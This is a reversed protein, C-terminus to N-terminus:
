SPSPPTDPDDGEPSAARQQARLADAETRTRHHRERLRKAEWMGFRLLGDLALGVGLGVVVGGVVLANVRTGITPHGAGIGLTTILWLGIRYTLYYLPAATFPNTLFQLGLMLGLHGRVALAAAFAIPLQLGYVPLFSIVSGVYLARRVSAPRFSWLYPRARAAEAFRRIVPYKGLNSRRPLWRLWRRSRAFRAAREARHAAEREFIDNPDPM